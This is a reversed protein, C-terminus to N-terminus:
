GGKARLSGRGRRHRSEFDIWRPSDTGLREIEEEIYGRSQQVEVAAVAM